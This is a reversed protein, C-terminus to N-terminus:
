CLQVSSVTGSVDEDRQKLKSILQNLYLKSLMQWCQLLQQFVLGM